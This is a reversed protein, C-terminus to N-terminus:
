TPSPNMITFPIYSFPLTGRINFFAYREESQVLLLCCYFAILLMFLDLEISLHHIKLTKLKTLNKSSLLPSWFTSTPFKSISSNLKNMSSISTPSIGITPNFYVRNLGFPLAFLQKSLIKIEGLQTSLHDPHKWCTKSLFM